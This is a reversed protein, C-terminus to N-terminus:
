PFTRNLLKPIFSGQRILAMKVKIQRDRMSTCKIYLLFWQNKVTSNWSNPCNRASICVVVEHSVATGAEAFALSLKEGM